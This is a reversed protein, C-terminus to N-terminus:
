IKMGWSRGLGAMGSAVFGVFQKMDGLAETVAHSDRIRRGVFDKTSTFEPSPDETMVVDASAYIAAVSLRKTYWSADVSSDNALTLIDSSLAQLEALSLPINSPLSM